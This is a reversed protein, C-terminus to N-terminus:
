SVEGDNHNWWRFEIPDLEPLPQGLKAQKFSNSIIVVAFVQRNQDYYAHHFQADEPLHGKNIVWRASTMFRLLAEPHMWMVAQRSQDLPGQKKRSLLSM